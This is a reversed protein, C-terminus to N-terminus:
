QRPASVRELIDRLIDDPRYAEIEMEPALAIRHRLAATAVKRIDDPTVFDRNGLVAAARAARILAISGRPGAGMRIGSSQRTERVIRVAYDLVASLQRQYEEKEEETLALRALHAIKKVEQRTLSM